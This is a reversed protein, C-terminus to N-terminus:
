FNLGLNVHIRYSADSHDLRRALIIRIDDEYSLGIGLSHRVETDTLKEPRDAIQGINYMLWGSFGSHPFEIRYEVDGLWFNTGVFEKHYYGHLTGMGGIFFKKHIPLDHYSDGYAASMLFGTNHSITQYRTIQAMYKTFDFNDNWNEPGWELEFFGKWFSSGFIDDKDRTDLKIQGTLSTLQQDDITDKLAERDTEPVGSFNDPFRKSGGFLSWLNRHADLWKYKEALIGVEFNIFRYPTFRVFAYGGEAEYYDKYDETALLAFATNKSESILRDDPSALRRYFSGGITLPHSLFFSKEIGVHYRWRESAFGYGGYATVEPLLSDTDSFKLGLYPAAGDIRNYYFKGVASLDRDGRRWRRWRDFSFKKKSDSSL